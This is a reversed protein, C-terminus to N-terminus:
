DKNKESNVAKTPSSTDSKSKVEIKEKRNITTINEHIKETFSVQIDFPIAGKTLLRM